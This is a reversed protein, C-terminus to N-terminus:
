SYQSLITVLLFLATIITGLAVGSIALAGIASASLLVASLATVAAYYVNYEGRDADAPEPETETELYPAFLSLQDTPWVIGRSKNYDIIGEKDLKPLHSQYLAIYVRQRQSSTLDDITTDNEKAAVYEAIDRMEVAGDISLLYAIADRRRQTQLIHFVDDRSLETPEEDTSDDISPATVSGTPRDDTITM